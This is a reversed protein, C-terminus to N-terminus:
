FLGKHQSLNLAPPSPSLLPHSPQIADNISHVHTQALEPYQHHVPLGPMSRNMPDWLTPCSQAASSFPVSQVALLDSWDIRFSILGSYENSPSVIFWFSWHKTWRIRFVSESSFVRISPFISPLLLFHHCFILYNSPMVQEISLIQAVELLYHFVPFGPTSCNMPNCLTLCSQVLSCLICKIIQDNSVKISPM